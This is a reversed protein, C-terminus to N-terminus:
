QAFQTKQANLNTAARRPQLDIWRPVTCCDFIDEFCDFM